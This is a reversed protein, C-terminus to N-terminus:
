DDERFLTAAFDMTNLGTFRFDDRVEKSIPIEKGNRTFKVDMIRVSNVKNRYEFNRAIKKIDFNEM